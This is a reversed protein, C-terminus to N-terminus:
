LSFVAYNLGQTDSIGEFPKGFVDHYHMMESLVGIDLM